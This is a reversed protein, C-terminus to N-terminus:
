SVMLALFFRALLFGGVTDWLWHGGTAVVALAAVLAVAVLANWYRPPLTAGVAYTLRLVHGSPFSGRLFGSGTGGTTTGLIPKVLYLVTSPEVNTLQELRPWPAPAAVAVPFPTAIFHKVLLEVLGMLVFYTVWWVGRRGGSRMAVIVVVLLTLPLGGLIWVVNLVTWQVGLEHLRYSVMHNLTFIPPSTAFITAVGFLVLWWKWQTHVKRKLM